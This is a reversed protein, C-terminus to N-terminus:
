RCLSTSINPNTRPPNRGWESHVRPFLLLFPRGPRSVRARTKEAGSRWENALVEYRMIINDLVFRVYKINWDPPTLKLPPRRYDVPWVALSRHSDRCCAIAVLSNWLSLIALSPVSTQACWLCVCTDTDHPTALVCM